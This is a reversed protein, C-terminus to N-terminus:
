ADAMANADLFAKLKEKWGKTHIIRQQHFSNSLVEAKSLKSFDKWNEGFVYIANDKRISELVVLNHDEFLYAIYDSFGGLGVYCKRAGYECITKQRDLIMEQVDGSARQLTGRLHEEVKQWPYEGEPFMRWNVRQTQISIFPTLNKHMLECEGFLELFLNIVHRINESNSPSKLLIHSIVLHKEEHQVYTIEVAPPIIFDRIYCDRYIDRHDEMEEYSDKGSWQKWRWKVTRIYRSEKPENPLPHWKGDANFRSVPGVAAPLVIDGSTTPISFGARQLQKHRNVEDLEVSVRFTAGDEIFGFYNNVNQIYKKNIKM